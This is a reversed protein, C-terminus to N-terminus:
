TRNAAVSAALDDIEEERLAVHLGNLGVAGVDQAVKSGRDDGVRAPAIHELIKHANNLLLVVCVPIWDGLEYLAQQDVEIKVARLGLELLALLKTLIICAIKDV